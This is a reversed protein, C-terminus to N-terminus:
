KKKMGVRFFGNTIEMKKKPDSQLTATFSFTGELWESTKKTIEMQGSHVSYLDFEGPPAFIPGHHNNKFDTKDGAKFADGYPLEITSEAYNGHITGSMAVPYMAQAKWPKGDVTATMTYGGETTAVMGRAVMEDLAKYIKKQDNIASSQGNCSTIMVTTFLAIIQTRM